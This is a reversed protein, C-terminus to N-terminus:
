YLNTHKGTKYLQIQACDQTESVLFLSAHRQCPHSQRRSKDGCCAVIYFMLNRFFGPSDFRSNVEFSSLIAIEFRSCTKNKM